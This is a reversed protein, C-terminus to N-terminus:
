AVFLNGGNLWRTNRQIDYNLVWAAFHLLDIEYDCAYTSKGSRLIEKREDKLARIRPGIKSLAVKLNGQAAALGYTEEVRLETPKLDKHRCHRCM